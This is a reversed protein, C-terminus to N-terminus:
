STKVVISSAPRRRNFIHNLQVLQLATLV